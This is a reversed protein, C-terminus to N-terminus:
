LAKTQNSIVQRLEKEGGRDKRERFFGWGQQSRKRHTAKVEHQLDSLERGGGWLGEDPSASTLVSDGCLLCSLIPIWGGRWPTLLTSGQLGCRHVRPSRLAQPLAPVM